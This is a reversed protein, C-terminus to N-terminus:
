TPGKTQASSVAALFAETADINSANVRLREIKGTAKKIRENMADQENFKHVYTYGWGGRSQEGVLRGDSLHFRSGRECIAMTKTVREVTYIEHRGFSEGVLRDGAVINVLEAM